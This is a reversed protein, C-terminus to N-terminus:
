NQNTPEYKVTERVHRSPTPSLTSPQPNLTSLRGPEPARGEGNATRSGAGLGPTWGFSDKTTQKGPVKIEPFRQMLWHRDKTSSFDLQEQIKYHLFLTPPIAMLQPGLGDIARQVPAAHYIQALEVAEREAIVAELTIRRELEQGILQMLEPDDQEPLEIGCFNM